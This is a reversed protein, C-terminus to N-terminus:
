HNQLDEPQDEPKDAQQDKQEGAVKGNMKEEFKKRWYSSPHRPGCYDERKHWPRSNKRGHGLGSLLIKSLVLIGLTQWYTIVPGSFLEPVLWNWLVMVVYTFLALFAIGMIIFKGFYFVGRAKM